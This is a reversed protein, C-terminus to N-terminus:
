KISITLKIIKNIGDEVSWDKFRIIIKLIKRFYILSFFVEATISVTIM